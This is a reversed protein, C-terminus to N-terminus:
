FETGGVVKTKSFSKDNPKDNVLGWTQSKQCKSLLKAYLIWSSITISSLIQVASM